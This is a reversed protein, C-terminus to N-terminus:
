QVKILFLTDFYRPLHRKPEGQGGVGSNGEFAELALSHNHNSSPNMRPNGNAAHYEHRYPRTRTRMVTYSSGDVWEGGNGQGGRAEWRGSTTVTEPYRYTREFVGSSLIREGYGTARWSASLLGGQHSHNGESATTATHSHDMTHTHPTLNGVRLTFQEAGGQGGAQSAGRLFRGDTLNPTHGQLTQGAPIAEGDCRMWGNASVAGSEPLSASGQLHSAVAIIQGVFAAQAPLAEELRAARQTLTAALSDSQELHRQLAQLTNYADSAEGVLAEIQSHTHTRQQQQATQLTQQVQVEWQDLEARAVQESRRFVEVGAEGRVAVQYIFDGGVHAVKPWKAVKALSVLVAPQEEQSETFLALAYITKQLDAEHPVLLSFTLVGQHDFYLREVPLTLCLFPRVQELTLGTLDEALLADLPAHHIDAHGVLGFFRVRQRQPSNLLPIAARTPLATLIGM